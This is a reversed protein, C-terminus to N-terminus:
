CALFSYLYATMGVLGHAELSPTLKATSEPRAQALSTIKRTKYDIQISSSNGNGLSNRQGGNGNPQLVLGDVAAFIVLKRVLSPM